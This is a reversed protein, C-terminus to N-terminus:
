ARRRWWDLTAALGTALDYTPRFGLATLRRVDPLLVPPDSPKTPIDGFRALEPRGAARALHEVVARVTTAEGSGINIPGVHDSALIAALASGVDDVHSFDRVQTGASCRTPVGALLQASVDSVLRSKAEHPGYLFFLRAWAWSLNRDRAFFSVVRRLADKSAGYLTDPALPTVDESCFGHRWDYEASSGVVVLREGGAAHFAHVLGLSAAVWRLNDESTWYVGPKACWAAHLLATPSVDAVLKTTAAADLLDVAHLQVTRSALLAEDAAPVLDAVHVEYGARVLAGVAARGVFGGGGTVLVRKM